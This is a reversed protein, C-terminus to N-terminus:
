GSWRPWHGKLPCTWAGAAASQSNAAMPPRRLRFPAAAIHSTPCACCGTLLVMCVLCCLQGARSGEAGVQLLVGDLRMLVQVPPALARLMGLLQQLSSAIDEASAPLRAPPVDSATHLQRGDSWGAAADLPGPQLLISAEIVSGRLSSGPPKGEASAPAVSLAGGPSAQLSYRRVVVEELGTSLLGAPHVSRNAPLEYATPTALVAICFLMATQAKWHDGELCPSCKGTTQVLLANTLFLPSALLPAVGSLATTCCREFM